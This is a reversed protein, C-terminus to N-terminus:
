FHTWERAKMGGSKQDDEPQQIGNVITPIKRGKGYQIAAKDSTPSTQNRQERHSQLDNLVADSDQLNHLTTYRNWTTLQQNTTPSISLNSRNTKTSTHKTYKAPVIIWETSSAQMLTEQRSVCSSECESKSTM